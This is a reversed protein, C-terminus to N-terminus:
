HLVRGSLLHSLLRGDPIPPCPALRPTRRLRRVRGRSPWGRRAQRQVGLRAPAPEGRGGRRAVGAAGLPGVLTATRREGSPPPARHGLVSAPQRRGLRAPLGSRVIGLGGAGARCAGRRRCRWGSAGELITQVVATTQCGQRPQAVSGNQRGLQSDGRREASPAMSAHAAGNYDPAAPREKEVFLWHSSVEKTIDKPGGFVQRDLMAEHYLNRDWTSLSANLRVLRPRERSSWGHQLVASPVINWRPM